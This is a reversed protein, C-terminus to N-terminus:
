VQRNLKTEYNQVITYLDSAEADSLGEGLTFFAFHQINKLEAVNGNNRAGLYYNGTFYSTFSPLTTIKDVNNRKYKGTSIGTRYSIIYGDTRSDATGLSSHNNGIAHFPGKNPDYGFDFRQSLSRHCGNLIISNTDLLSYISQHAYDTNFIINPNLNTDAFATSGNSIAGNISHTWGGSFILRFAIDLDRPDKLNWKHSLATGGVFPYIAKMKSWINATKMDKVLTDIASKQTSDTLGAASIFSLADSDYNSFNFGQKYWGDAYSIGVM